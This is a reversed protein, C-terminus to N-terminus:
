LYSLFSKPDKRLKNTEAFVAQDVESVDSPLNYGAAAISQQNVEEKSPMIEKSFASAYDQTTMMGYEKHPGSFNGVVKHDPDTIMKRNWRSPTGDNVLLRM